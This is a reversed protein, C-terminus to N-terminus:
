VTEHGLCDFFLKGRKILESRKGVMM